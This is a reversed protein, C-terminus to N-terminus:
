ELEIASADMDQQTAQFLGHLPIAVDFERGKRRHRRGSQFECANVPQKLSEVVGRIRHAAEL